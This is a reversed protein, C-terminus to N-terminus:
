VGALTFDFFIDVFDHTKLVLVFVFIHCLMLLVTKNCDIHIWEHIWRYGVCPVHMRNKFLYFILLYGTSSKNRRNQHWCTLDTSSSSFAGWNRQHWVSSFCPEFGSAEWYSVRGHKQLVSYFCYYMPKM